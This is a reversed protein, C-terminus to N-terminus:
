RALQAAMTERLHQMDHSRCSLARDAAESSPIEGRTVHPWSQAKEGGSRLGLMGSDQQAIVLLFAPSSRHKTVGSNICLHM